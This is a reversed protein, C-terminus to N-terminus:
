YKGDGLRRLKFLSQHGDLAEALEAGDRGKDWGDSPVYINRGGIVAKTQAMCWRLCSYIKEPSTGTGHMPDGTDMFRLIREHNAAREGARVSQGQIKTRVMGPGLIFFKTDAEEDDLLETMKMLMLKSASYASYTRAKQSVGAGSFFCVSAGPRRYKWLRRLLRLPLLANADISAQWEDDHCEFFKGIPELVGIGVVILDWPMLPMPADRHWGSVQWDDSIFRAMLDRCIDSRSGLFTVNGKPNVHFFQETQEISQVM